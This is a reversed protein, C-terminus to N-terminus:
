NNVKRLTSVYFSIPYSFEKLFIVLTNKTLLNFYKKGEKCLFRIIGCIFSMQSKKIKIKIKKKLKTNKL